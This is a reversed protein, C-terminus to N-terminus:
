NVQMTGRTLDLSHGYKMMLSFDYQLSRKRLESQTSRIVACDRVLAVSIGAPQPNQYYFLMSGYM